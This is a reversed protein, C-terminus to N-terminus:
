VTRTRVVHLPPYTDANCAHVDAGAALLERLTAHHRNTIAQDIHGGAVCVCVCTAAPPRGYAHQGAPVGPRPTGTAVDRALPSAVPCAFLPLSHV